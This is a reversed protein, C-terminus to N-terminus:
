NGGSGQGHRCDGNFHFDLAENSWCARITDNCNHCTMERHQAEYLCKWYANDVGYNHHSSPCYVVKHNSTENDCQRYEEFCGLCEVLRHGSQMGFSPCDFVPKGCDKGPCNTKHSRICGFSIIILCEPCQTDHESPSPVDQGCAPCPNDQGVLWMVVFTGGLIGLCITYYIVAPTFLASEAEQPKVLYPIVIMAVALFIMLYQSARQIHFWNPNSVQVPFM